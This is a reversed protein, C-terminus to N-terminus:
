ALPYNVPDFTAYLLYIADADNVVGDGNYDATQNLPYEEANFTAYLLYIADADTIVDDGTVDGSAYPVM